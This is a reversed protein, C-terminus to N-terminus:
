MAGIHPPQRGAADFLQRVDPRQLVRYQWWTVALALLVVVLSVTRPLSGAGHALTSVDLHPPTALVLLAALAILALTIRLVVLAWWRWRAQRHLLGLGIWLNICALDLDRHLGFLSLVTSLIAYVGTVIFLWAVVTVAKPFPM